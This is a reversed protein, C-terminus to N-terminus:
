QASSPAGEAKARKERWRLERFVIWGIVALFLVWVPISAFIKDGQLSLDPTGGIASAHLKLTTPFMIGHGFQSANMLGADVAAFAVEYVDGRFLFLNGKSLITGTVRMEQFGVFGYDVMTCIGLAIMCTFLIWRRKLFALMVRRL